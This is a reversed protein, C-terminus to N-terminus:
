RYRCTRGVHGPESEDDPQIDPVLLASHRCHAGDAQLLAPQFISATHNMNGVVYM